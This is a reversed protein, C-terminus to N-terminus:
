ELEMRLRFPRPLRRPDEQVVVKKLVEMVRGLIGDRRKTLLM